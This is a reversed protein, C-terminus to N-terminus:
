RCRMTEQVIPYLPGRRKNAAGTIQTLQASVMQWARLLDDYSRYVTRGLDNQEIEQVGSTMLELLQAQTQLLVDLPTAPTSGNAQPCGYQNTTKMRAM